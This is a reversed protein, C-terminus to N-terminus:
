DNLLAHVADSQTSAVDRRQLSAVTPARWIELGARNAWLAQCREADFLWAPTDLVFLAALRRELDNLVLRDSPDDPDYRHADRWSM